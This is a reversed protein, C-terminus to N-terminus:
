VKDKRRQFETLGAGTWLREWLGTPIVLGESLVTAKPNCPKTKEMQAM